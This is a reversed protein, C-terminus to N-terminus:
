RRGLALSLGVFQARSRIRTDELDPRINTFGEHHRVVLGIQPWRRAALRVGAVASGEYLAVPTTGVLRRSETERVVAERRRGISAGVDVSPCVPGLCRLAVNLGGLLEWRKVSVDFSPAGELRLRSGRDTTGAEAWASVAGALHYAGRVQIANRGRLSGYTEGTTAPSASFRSFPFGFQVALTFGPPPAGPDVTPMALPDQQAALPAGAIPLALLARGVVARVARASLRAPRSRSPVPRRVPCSM